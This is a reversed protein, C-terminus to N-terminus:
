SLKLVIRVAMKRRQNEKAAAISFGSKKGDRYAEDM